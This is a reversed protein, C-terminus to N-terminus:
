DIFWDDLDVSGKELNSLEKKLESIRKETAAIKRKMKDRKILYGDLDKHLREWYEDDTEENYKVAVFENDEYGWWKQQIETWGEAKLKQLNQVATDIDCFLTEEDIHETRTVDKIKDLVSIGNHEVYEKMCIKVDEFSWDEGYDEDYLESKENRCIDWLMKATDIVRKDM